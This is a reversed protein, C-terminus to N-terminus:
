PVGILLQLLRWDKALHKVMNGFGQWFSPMHCSLACVNAECPCGWFLFTNIASCLSALVWQMASYLRHAHCHWLDSFPERETIELGRQSNTKWITLPYLTLKKKGSHISDLMLKLLTLYCAITSTLSDTQSIFTDEKCVDMGPSYLEYLLLSSDWSPFAIGARYWKWWHRGAPAAPIRAKLMGDLFGLLTKRAALQLGLPASSCRDFCSSWVYLLSYAHCPGLHGHM